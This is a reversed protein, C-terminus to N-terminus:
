NTDEPIGALQRFSNISRIAESLNEFYMPKVIDANALL